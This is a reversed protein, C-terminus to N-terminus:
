QIGSSAAGLNQEEVSAITQSTNKVAAWFGTVGVVVTGGVGIAAAAVASDMPLITRACTVSGLVKLRRWFSPSRAFAAPHVGSPQSGSRSAATTGADGPLDNPVLDLAAFEGGARGGRVQPLGAYGPLIRGLRRPWRTIKLESVSSFCGLPPRM